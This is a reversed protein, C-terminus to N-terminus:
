ANRFITEWSHIVADHSVKEWCIQLNFSAKRKEFRQYPDYLYDSTWRGAGASKLLGFITSDLPQLEGTM